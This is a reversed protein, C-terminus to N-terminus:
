FSVLVQTSLFGKTTTPTTLLFIPIFPNLLCKIHQWYNTTRLIKFRPIFTELISLCIQLPQNDSHSVNRQLRLLLRTQQKLAPIIYDGMFTHDTRSSLNQHLPLNASQWRRQIARSVDPCFPILWGWQTFIDSSVLPWTLKRALLFEFNKRSCIENNEKTVLTNEWMLIVECWMWLHTSPLYNVPPAYKEGKVTVILRGLPSSTRNGLYNKVVSILLIFLFHLVRSAFCLCVRSRSERIFKLQHIYWHHDIYVIFYSM